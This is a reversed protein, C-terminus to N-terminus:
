HRNQRWQLRNPLKWPTLRFSLYWATAHHCFESINYGMGRHSMLYRFDSFRFQETKLGWLHFRFSKELGIAKQKVTNPWICTNPPDFLSMILTFIHNFDDFIEFVELLAWTVHFYYHLDIELRFLFEHVKITPWSGEISDYVCTSCKTISM